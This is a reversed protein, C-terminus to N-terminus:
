LTPECALEYLGLCRVGVLFLGTGSDSPPGYWWDFTFPLGYVHQLRWMVKLVEEALMRAEKRSIERISFVVDEYNGNSNRSRVANEVVETFEMQVLQGSYDIVNPSNIPPIQSKGLAPPLKYLGSM